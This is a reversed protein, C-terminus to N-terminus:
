VSDAVELPSVPAVLVDMMIAAAEALWTTKVVAGLLPVVPCARVGATTAVISSAKLLTTVADVAATTTDDVGAPTAPVKVTLAALPTAVKLL